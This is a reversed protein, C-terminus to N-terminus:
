KGGNAKLDNICNADLGPVAGGLLNSLIDTTEVAFYMLCDKNNCHRGNQADQHNVAMNTGNNVLGLVHGLEHLAVSTELTKYSPQGLGGSNDSMTKGFLVISSAGYQIGLTKYSGSNELYESHPLYVFISLSKEHPFFLRNKKEIDFIDGLSLYPRSAINLEHVNVSIGNPKNLKALLFNQIETLTEPAPPHEKDYAFDITLNTYKESSLFDHPSVGEAAAAGTEKKKCGPMLFLGILLILFIKRM